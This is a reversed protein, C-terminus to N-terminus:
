RPRKKEGAEYVRNVVAFFFAASWGCMLIGTLAEVGTVLRWESPLLVDGYGVTTYTVASFYLASLVDPLAGNGAFYFAWAAIEVLHLVILLSALRVFLLTVGGFRLVRGPAPPIRRLAWALGGAHIVVCFAMVLWTGLVRPLM